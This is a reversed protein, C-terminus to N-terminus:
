TPRRAARRFVADGGTDAFPSSLDIRRSRWGSGFFGAPGTLLFVSLALLGPLGALLFASQQLNRVKHRRRAPESLHRMGELNPRSM